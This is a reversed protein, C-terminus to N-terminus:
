AQEDGDGLRQRLEACLGEYDVHSVGQRALVKLEGVGTGIREEVWADWALPDCTFRMHCRKCLAVANAMMWRTARYRRSVIHACQIGQVSGCARCQWGDRERVAQSFLRDADHLKAKRKSKARIRRRPKASRKAPKPVRM